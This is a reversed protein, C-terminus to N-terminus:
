RTRGWSLAGPRKKSRLSALAQRYLVCYQEDSPAAAESAPRRAVESRVAAWVRAAFAFTAFRRPHKFM